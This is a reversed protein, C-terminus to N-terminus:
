NFLSEVCLLAPFTPQSFLFLQTAPAPPDPSAFLPLPPNPMCQAGILEALCGGVCSRPAAPTPPYKVSCKEICRNISTQVYVLSKLKEFIINMVYILMSRFTRTHPNYLVTKVHLTAHGRFIRSPDAFPFCYEAFTTTYYVQRIPSTLYISYPTPM